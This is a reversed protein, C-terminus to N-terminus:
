EKGLLALPIVIYASGLILVDVENFKVKGCSAGKELLNLRKITIHTMKKAQVNLDWNPLSIIVYKM